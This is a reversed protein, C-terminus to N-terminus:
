TEDACDDGIRLTGWYFTDGSYTLELIGTLRVETGQPLTKIVCAYQAAISQKIIPARKRVNVATKTEIPKDIYNRGKGAVLNVLVECGFPHLENRAAVCNAAGTKRGLFIANQRRKAAPLSKTHAFALTGPKAVVYKGTDLKVETYVSFRM